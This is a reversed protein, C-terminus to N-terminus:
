VTKKCASCKKLVASPNLCYSCQLLEPGSLRGASMYSHADHVRDDDDGQLNLGELWAALNDTAKSASQALADEHSHSDLSNLRGIFGRWETNARKYRAM